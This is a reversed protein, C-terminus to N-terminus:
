AEALRHDDGAQHRRLLRRDAQDVQVAHRLGLDLRDVHASQDHRHGLHRLLGQATVDVPVEVGNFIAVENPTGNPGGEASTGNDGTIYIILTNDYEGSDKVAQIM